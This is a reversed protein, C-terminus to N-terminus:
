PLEESTLMTNGARNRWERLADSLSKIEDIGFIRRYGAEYLRGIAQEDWAGDLILWCEFVRSSALRHLKLRACLEKWKHNENGDQGTSIKIFLPRITPEIAFQYETTGTNGGFWENVITRETTNRDYTVELDDLLAAVIENAPHPAGSLYTRLDKVKSARLAEEVPVAVQLRRTFENVMMEEIAVLTEVKSRNPLSKLQDSAGRVCYAIVNKAEDGFPALTRLLVGYRSRVGADLASAFSVRSCRVAALLVDLRWPEKSEFLVEKVVSRVVRPNIEAFEGFRERSVACLRDLYTAWVPHKSLYVLYKQAPSLLDSASAGVPFANTLFKLYGCVLTKGVEIFFQQQKRNTRFPVESLNQLHGLPMHRSVRLVGLALHRDTVAIGDLRAAYLVLSLLQVPTRFQANIKRINWTRRTRRVSICLDQLRDSQVRHSSERRDYLLLNLLLDVYRTLQPDIAYKDKCYKYVKEPSSPQLGPVVHTELYEVASQLEANWRTPADLQLGALYGLALRLQESQSIPEAVLNIRLAEPLHTLYQLIEEATRWFKKEFGTTRWHTVFAVIPVHGTGGWLDPDVGISPTGGLDLCEKSHACSYRCTAGPRPASLEVHARWQKELAFALIGEYLDGLIDPM